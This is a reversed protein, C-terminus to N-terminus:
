IGMLLQDRKLIQVLQNQQHHIGTTLVVMMISFLVGIEMEM